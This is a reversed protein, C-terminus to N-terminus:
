VAAIVVDLVLAVIGLVVGWGFVYSGEGRKFGIGGVLALALLPLVLLAQAVGEPISPCEGSDSCSMGVSFVFLADMGGIVVLCFLFTLVASIRGAM